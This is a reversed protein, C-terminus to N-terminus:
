EFSRGAAFEGPALLVGPGGLALSVGSARGDAFPTTHEKPHRHLRDEDAFPSFDICRIASSLAEAVPM